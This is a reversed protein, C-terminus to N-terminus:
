KTSFPNDNWNMFPKSNTYVSQFVFPNMNKTDKLGWTFYPLDEVSDSEWEYFTKNRYDGKYLNGERMYNLFGSVTIYFSNEFDPNGDKFKTFGMWNLLEDMFFYSKAIGDKIPIIQINPYTQIEFGIKKKLNVINLRDMNLGKFYTEWMKVAEELSINSIQNQFDRM